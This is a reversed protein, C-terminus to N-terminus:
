NEINYKARKGGGMMICTYGSILEDRLSENKIDQFNISYM